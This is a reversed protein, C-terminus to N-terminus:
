VGSVRRPETRRFRAAHFPTEGTSDLRFIGIDLRVGLFAGITRSGRAGITRSGGFDFMSSSIACPACAENIRTPKTTKMKASCAPSYMRAGIESPMTM